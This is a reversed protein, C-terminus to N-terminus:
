PKAFCKAGVPMPLEKQKAATSFISLHDEPDKNREYVRINWPLKARRHYKFRTIRQTFYTPKPRKYPSNLDEYADEFGEEHESDSSIEQHGFRKRRSKYREMRAKEKTTSRDELRRLRRFHTPEKNKSPTKQSKSTSRTQKYTDSTGSSEFSFRDFIRQGTVHGSSILTKKSSLRLLILTKQTQLVPETPGGHTKTGIDRITAGQFEEKMPQSDVM